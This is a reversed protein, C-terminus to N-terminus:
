RDEPGPLHFVPLTWNWAIAGLRFAAICAMGAFAATTREFALQMLLYVGAGAIAATGYIQGKRLILPIDAPIATRLRFDAAEAPM